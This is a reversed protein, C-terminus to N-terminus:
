RPPNAPGSASRKLLPSCGSGKRPDGRGRAVVGAIELCQGSYQLFRMERFVPLASAVHRAADDFRNSEASVMGLYLESLAVGYSDGTARYRELAEQYLRDAGALDGAGLAVSGLNHTAVAASASMGHEDSIRRSEAFYGEAAVYDLDHGLAVHGLIILCAGIGRADDVQTFLELGQEARDRAEDFDGQAWALGAAGEFLEAAMAPELAGAHELGARLWARGETLEGRIWWLQWVTKLLRAMTAPDASRSWTLAARLDAQRRGMSESWQDLHDPQNDRGTEAFALVEGAQRRRMEEAEGLEDFDTPPM